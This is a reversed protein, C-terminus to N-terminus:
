RNDNESKLKYIYEVVEPKDWEASGRIRGVENGRSNILVTHPSTFIALDEALKGDRDVYYNLDPAKYKELFRRQEELDSWEKEPSLMVVEIGSGRTQKYFSNLSKLERICPLCDRSWSILLVFKGKLDGLTTKQGTSSYFPTQPAERVDAYINVNNERAAAPLALILALLMTIIYKKM